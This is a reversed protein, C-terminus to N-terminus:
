HVGPGDYECPDHGGSTVEAGLEYLWDKAVSYWLTTQLGTPSIGYLCMKLRSILPTSPTMPPKCFLLSTGVKFTAAQIGSVVLVTAKDQRRTRENM